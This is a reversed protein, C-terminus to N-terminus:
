KSSGQLSIGLTEQEFNLGIRSLNVDRSELQKSLATFLAQNPSALAKKARGKISVTKLAIKAAMNNTKETVDLKVLKLQQSQPANGLTLDIGIQAKIPKEVAIAGKIMGQQNQIRVDMQPVNAEVKGQGSLLDSIVGKM